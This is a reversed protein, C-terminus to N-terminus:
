CRFYGDIAFFYCYEDKGLDLLRILSSLHFSVSPSKWGLRSAFIVVNLIASWSSPAHLRCYGVQTLSLPGFFKWSTVVCKKGRRMFYFCGFVRQASFDFTVRLCLSWVLLPSQFYWSLSSRRFSLSLVSSSTSLAHLFCPSRPPSTIHLHAKHGRCVGQCVDCVFLGRLLRHPVSKKKRLNQFM